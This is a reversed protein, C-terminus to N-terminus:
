AFLKTERNVHTNHPNKLTPHPPPLTVKSRPDKHKAQKPITPGACGTELVNAAEAESTVVLTEVPTTWTAQAAKRVLVTAVVIVVVELVRAEAQVVVVVIVTVLVVAIAAAAVGVAVVARARVRVPLAATALPTALPPTELVRETPARSPHQPATRHKYSASTPLPNSRLMLRLPSKSKWNPTM